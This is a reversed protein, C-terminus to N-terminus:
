RPRAGALGREVRELVEAVFFREAFCGVGVPAQGRAFSRRQEAHRDRDLVVDVDGALDGRPSGRRVAPRHRRVRLDDLAQAGRARDHEALRVDRLHRDPREGLPGREARRAVRPLGTMGRATRGAPGGRRDRCAHDGCREARVAGTGDPNRRRPGAQDPDLRLAAPHRGAVLQEVAQGHEARQGPRDTVRREQEVDDGARPRREPSRRRAFRAAQADSQGGPDREGCRFGPEIRDDLRRRPPERLCQRLLAVLDDFDFRIVAQDAHGEQRTRQGAHAVPRQADRVDRAEVRARARVGPVAPQEGPGRQFQSAGHFGTQLAPDARHEAPDVHQQGRGGRGRRRRDAAEVPQGAPLGVLGHDGRARVSPRPVHQAPWPDVHRGPEGRVPERETGLQEARRVGLLPQNGKGRLQFLDFPPRLPM